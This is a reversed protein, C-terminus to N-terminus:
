FLKSFYKVTSTRVGFMMHLLEGIIFLLVTALVLPVKTFKSVIIALLITGIYDFMAADVLRTKHFGEGPNGALEKLKKMFVSM